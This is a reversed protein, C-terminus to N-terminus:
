RCIGDSNAGGPVLVVIGPTYGQPSPLGDPEGSKVSALIMGRERESMVVDLEAPRAEGTALATAPAVTSVGLSLASWDTAEIRPTPVPAVRVEPAPAPISWVQRADDFSPARAVRSTSERPAFAAAPLIARSAFLAAALLVLFFAALLVQSPRRAALTRVRATRAAIRSDVPGELQAPHLSGERLTHVDASASVVLRNGKAPSRM